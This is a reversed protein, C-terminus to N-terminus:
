RDRLQKEYQDVVDAIANWIIVETGTFGVDPYDGNKVMEILVHIRGTDIEDGSYANLIRQYREENIVSRM